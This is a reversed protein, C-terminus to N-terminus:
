LYKLKMRIYIYSFVYSPMMVQKIMNDNRINRKKRMNSYMNEQPMSETKERNFVNSNSGLIISRFDKRSNRIMLPLVLTLLLVM